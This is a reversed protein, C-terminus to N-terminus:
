CLASNATVVAAMLDAAVVATSVAAEEVTFDAVVVATSDVVSQAEVSAAAQEPTSAPVVAM